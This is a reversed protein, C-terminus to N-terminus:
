LRADMFYADGKGGCADIEQRGALVPPRGRHFHHVSAIAATIGNRNNTDYLRKM